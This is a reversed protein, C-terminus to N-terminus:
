NRLIDKNEILQYLSRLGIKTRELDHNISANLLHEAWQVLNEENHQRAIEILNNAFVKIEDFPINEYLSYCEDAISSLEDLLHKNSIMRTNIFINYDTQDMEVENELISFELYKKIELILDKKQLPKKLYSNCLKFARERDFNLVSASIAIIPINHTAETEKLQKSAEFGDMVPMKLDMLILNPLFEKALKVAQEGNEAEIFILNYNKMFGRLVKRNIPIDDVILVSADKFYITNLDFEDINNESEELTMVTDVEIDKLLLCFSSGSGPESSVEIKGNMMETLRKTISLGLGTGGYKQSDQNDMQTFTEFIRKQEHKPIGIGTDTVCIKLDAKENQIKVVEASITVYGKDTFKVANGVLNLLIQRLRAEDITIQYPFNASVKTKIQIGKASTKQDFILSIDNFLDRCAVPAYEISLKGAEVKALDLIDNILSLLSKGSTLIAQLYSREENSQETEQMIDAFGIIANLPTRIEHSMNALFESKAQNAAEAREKAIKLDSFAQKLEGTRKTVLDELHERYLILENEAQQRKTIDIGVCIFYPIQNEIFSSKYWEVILDDGQYNKIHTQKEMRINLKSPNLFDKKLDTIEDNHFILEFFDENILKKCDKNITDCLIDNIMEIKGDSRIIAVFTPSTKLLRLNFDRELKLKQETNKLSDIMRLLIRALNRIEKAGKIPIKVDKLGHKEITLATKSLQLIPKTINHSLIYSFLLAILVSLIGIILIHSRLKKVPLEIEDVYATSCVYWDLPAYHNVYSIKEFPINANQGPKSWYYTYANYNTDLATKMMAKAIHEGTIPDFLEKLNANRGLQPHIVSHMSGDFIYMYGSKSYKNQKFSEELEDIVTAYREQADKEIDDIYIGTGLVWGWPKFLKVFSLKPQQETTGDKTPKPWDYDIFGSGQALALHAFEEFINKNEKGATSYEPKDLPMSELEPFIPHMILTPTPLKLDNIWFYGSGNDYRIQRIEQTAYKRATAETYQKNLYNQYHFECITTAVSMMNELESKRKQLSKNKYFIISQHQNEVNHTVTNVTNQANELYTQEMTQKVQIQTFFVVFFISGIVISLTVILLQANISKFM